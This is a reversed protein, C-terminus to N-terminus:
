GAPKSVVNNCRPCVLPSGVAAHRVNEMSASKRCHPCRMREISRSITYAAWLIPNLTVAVLGGDITGGSGVFSAVAGFLWLAVATPMPWSAYRGEVTPERNPSPSAVWHPMGSWWDLVAGFGFMFLVFLWGQAGSMSRVITVVGALFAFGFAVRLLGAWLPM